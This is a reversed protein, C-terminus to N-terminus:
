EDVREFGSLTRHKGSTRVRYIRIRESYKIITNLNDETPDDNYAKIAGILLTKAKTLSDQIPETVTVQLHKKM